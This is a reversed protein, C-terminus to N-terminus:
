IYNYGTVKRGFGKHLSSCSCIDLKRVITKMRCVLWYVELSMTESTGDEALLLPDLRQEGHCENESCINISCGGGGWERGGAGGGGGGSGDVEENQNYLRGLRVNVYNYVIM